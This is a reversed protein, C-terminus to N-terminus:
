DTVSHRFKSHLQWYVSVFPTALQIGVLRIFATQRQAKPQERRGFLAPLLFWVGLGVVTLLVEGTLLGTLGTFAGSIAAWYVPLSQENTGARKWPQREQQNHDAANAGCPHQRQSLLEHQGRLCHIVSTNRSNKISVGQRTLNALLSLDAQRSYATELFGGVRELTTKRCFCNASLLSVPDINLVDPSVPDAIYAPQLWLQGIVFETADNFCALANALWTPQPLCEDNTFAVIRGRAAQWGRNRATAAGRSIPQPLYRIDLTGHQQNLQRTFLAVAAAM